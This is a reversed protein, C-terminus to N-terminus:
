QYPERIQQWDRVCCPLDPMWHAAENGFRVVMALKRAAMSLENM